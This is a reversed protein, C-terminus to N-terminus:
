SDVTLKILRGVGQLLERLDGQPCSVERDSQPLNYLHTSLGSIPFESFVNARRRQPHGCQTLSPVNPLKKCVPMPFSDSTPFAGKEIPM